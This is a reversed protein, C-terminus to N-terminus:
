RLLLLPCSANVQCRRKARPCIEEYSEKLLSRRLPHTAALADYPPSPLTQTM